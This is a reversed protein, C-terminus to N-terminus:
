DSGTVLRWNWCVTFNETKTFNGDIRSVAQDGETRRSGRGTTDLAAESYHLAFPHDERTAADTAQLMTWQFRM